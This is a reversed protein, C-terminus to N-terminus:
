ADSVALTEDGPGRVVLSCTADFGIGAVAAPDIKAKEVSEKVAECVAQWVQESSQEVIGGDERHLAIARKATALLGGSTDFVGARASGTGVDVGILYKAM